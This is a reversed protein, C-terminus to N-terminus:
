HNNIADRLDEKSPHNYGQTQRIDHHGVVLQVVEIGIGRKLLRTICTHRLSHIVFDKENTMNLEKRVKRWTWEVSSISFPFPRLNGDKKRKELMSKVRGLFPIERDEGNKTDFFKVFGNELDIQEWRLKLSEGVRCGVDILFIWLDAKDKYGLEITKNILKDEVDISVTFKRRNNTRDYEIIPRGWNFTFGKCGSVYTVLKSLAALKRNITGPKYELKNKQYFKYERVTETSVDNMFKPSGHWKSFVKANRLSNHGDKQGDWMMINVKDIASKVTINNKM